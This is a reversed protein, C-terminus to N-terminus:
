LAKEPLHIYRYKWFQRCEGTSSDSTDSSASDNASGDSNDTSDGSSVTQSGYSPFTYNLFAIKIGNIEVIKPADIGSQNKHIGVLTVDPHSTEWYNLTENIMSSGNDDILATASTVVNFGANVLADGVETPTAYPATGSVASHDTTFPTEQNVMAIDAAQIDSKLNAYVSDYNWAGTESQGSALLSPQVLNDGVALVTATTVEQTTAAAEEEKQKQLDAAKKAQAAPQRIMTYDMQNFVLCLVVLVAISVLFSTRSNLREKYNLPLNDRKKM